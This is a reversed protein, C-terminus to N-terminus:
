VDSINTLELSYDHLDKINKLDEESLPEGKLNKRSLSYTYDSVQNLFKAAKGFSM